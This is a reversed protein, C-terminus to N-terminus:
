AVFSSHYPACGCEVVLLAVRRRILELLNVRELWDRIDVADQSTVQVGRDAGGLRPSAGPWHRKTYSEPGFLVLPLEM